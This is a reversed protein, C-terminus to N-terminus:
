PGRAVRFDISDGVLLDFTFAVQTHPAMGVYNYDYVPKLLQGRFDVELEAAQYEQGSPLTVSTGSSIPGVLQNGTPSSAVIEIREDYIAVDRDVMRPIGSVLSLVKAM